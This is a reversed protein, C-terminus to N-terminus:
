VTRVGVRFLTRKIQESIGRIKRFLLLVKLGKTTIIHRRSEVVARMALLSRRIIM